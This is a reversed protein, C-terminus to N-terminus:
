IDCTPCGGAYDEAVAVVEKVKGSGLRLKTKGPAHRTEIHELAQKAATEPSPEVPEKVPEVILAPLDESENVPKLVKRGDKTYEVEVEGYEEHYEIHKGHDKREQDKKEKEKLGFYIVQESKSRDRYVTTGKIGLKWALLYIRRVTEVPEDHRLNITKSTGADIWAQWIAQQLLHWEPDVDHATKFIKRLSRPIWKLHQISGTEAVELFVEPEDMERKAL